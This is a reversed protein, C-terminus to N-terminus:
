NDLGFRLGLGVVLYCAITYLCSLKEYDCTM